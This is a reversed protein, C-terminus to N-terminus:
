RKLQMELWRMAEYRDDFMKTPVGPKHFQMYFNGLLRVTLSKIVVAEAVRGKPVNNAAYERAESSAQTREGAIALVCHPENKTLRAAIERHEIIDQLSLEIDDNITVVLIGQGDYDMRATSHFETIQSM